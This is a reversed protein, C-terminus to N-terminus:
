AAGAFALAPERRCIAQLAGIVDASSIAPGEPGDRGADVSLIVDDLSLIGELRGQEDVVPLRRVRGERMRRLAVQIDDSALCFLADGRFIDSVKLDSARVNRTGLAICIDRDTVIGVLEGCAGVVPLAGCGYDWMLAIAAAINMEPLCAAVKTAMLERVKM